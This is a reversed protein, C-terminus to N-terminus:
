AAEADLAALAEAIRELLVPSGAESVAASAATLHGRV